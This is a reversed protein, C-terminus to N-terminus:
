LWVGPLDCHTMSHPPLQKGNNYVTNGAWIDARLLVAGIQKETIERLKPDTWIKQLDDLEANAQDLTPYSTRITILSKDENTYRLYGQRAKGWDDVLDGKYVEEVMYDM